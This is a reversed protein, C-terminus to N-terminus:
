FKWSIGGFISISNYSLNNLTGPQTLDLPIFRNEHGAFRAGAYIASGKRTLPVILNALAKYKMWDLGNYVIYGNSETYNKMDGYSGSLEIWVKSAIGWGFTLDPVLSIGEGDADGSDGGLADLDGAHAHLSAALYLDLNGM